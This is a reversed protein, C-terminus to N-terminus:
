IAKALMRPAHVTQVISNADIQTLVNDKINMPPTKQVSLVLSRVFLFYKRGQGARPDV